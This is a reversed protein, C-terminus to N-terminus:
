SPFCGPLEEFLILPLRSAVPSTPARRDTPYQRSPTKSSQSLQALDKAEKAISTLGRQSDRFRQAHAQAHARWVGQDFITFAHVDRQVGGALGFFGPV